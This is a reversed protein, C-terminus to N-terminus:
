GCACTVENTIAPPKRNAAATADRRNCFVRGVLPYAEAHLRPLGRRTEDAFEPTMVSYDPQGSLYGAVLPRMATEYGSLPTTRAAFVREVSAAEIEKVPSAGARKLAVELGDSAAVAVDPQM